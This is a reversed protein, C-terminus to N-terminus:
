LKLRLSDTYTRPGQVLRLASSPSLVHEWLSRSAPKSPTPHRPSSLGWSPKSSHSPIPCGPIPKPITSAPASIHSSINTLISQWLRAAALLSVVAPPGQLALVQVYNLLFMAGVAIWTRLHIEPEIDEEDYVLNHEPVSTDEVRVDSGAMKEIVQSAATVQEAMNQYNLKSTKHQSPSSM